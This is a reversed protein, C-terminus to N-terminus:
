IMFGSWGGNEEIWPQLESSIYIYLWQAINVISDHMDTSTLQCWSMCGNLACQVALQGAFAFLYIIQYWNVGDEFLTKCVRAFSPYITERTPSLQVIMKEIIEASELKKAM